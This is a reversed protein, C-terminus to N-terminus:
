VHTLYELLQLRIKLNETLNFIEEKLQVIYVDVETMDTMDTM